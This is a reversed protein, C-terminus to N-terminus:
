PLRRAKGRAIGTWGNRWQNAASISLVLSNYPEPLHNRKKTSFASHRCGNFKFLQPIFQERLCWYKMQAVRVWDGSFEFPFWVCRYACLM